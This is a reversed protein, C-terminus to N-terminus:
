LHWYMCMQVIVSRGIVCRLVIYYM